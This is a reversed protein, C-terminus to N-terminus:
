INILDGKVRFATYKSVHHCNNSCKSRKNCFYLFLQENLYNYIYLVHTSNCEDDSYSLLDKLQQLGGLQM